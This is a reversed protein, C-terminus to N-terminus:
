ARDITEAPEVSLTGDIQVTSEPELYEAYSVSIHEM